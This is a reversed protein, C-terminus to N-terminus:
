DKSSSGLKAEDIPEFYSPIAIADDGGFVIRSLFMNSGAVRKSMDDRTRHFQNTPALMAAASMAM